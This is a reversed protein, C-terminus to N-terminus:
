KRTRNKPPAGCFRSSGKGNTGRRSTKVMPHRNPRTAKKNQSCLACSAVYQEIEKKMGRWYYRPKIRQYTRDGGQHGAAPIDHCLEMLEKRSVQPIVVRDAEGKVGKRYLINDGSLVFLERNLWYYKPAPGSLFIEEESPEGKTKRWQVVWKLDPDKSQNEKLEEQSYGLNVGLDGGVEQVWIDGEGESWIALEDGRKSVSVRSIQVVPERTDKPQTSGYPRKALPITDDVNETFQGWNQQARACYTCGGCPLNALVKNITIMEREGETVLDGEGDSTSSDCLTQEGEEGSEEDQSGSESM